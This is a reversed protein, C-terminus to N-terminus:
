LFGQVQIVPGKAGICLTMQTAQLTDALTVTVSCGFPATCVHWGSPHTVVDGNKITVQPGGPIPPTVVKAGPKLQASKPQGM